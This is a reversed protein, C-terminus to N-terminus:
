CGLYARTWIGMNCPSVGYGGEVGTEWFEEVTHILNQTLTLGRSLKEFSVGYLKASRGDRGTSFYSLGM